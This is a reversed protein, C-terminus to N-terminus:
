KDKKPPVLEASLKKLVAKITEDKEEEALRAARRRTEDRTLEPLRPMLRPLGRLLAEALRVLAKPRFHGREDFCALFGSVTTALGQRMKEMGANRAERNPDDKPLSALYADALTFLEHMLSLNFGMIGVAEHDYSGLKEIPEMYVQLLDRIAGTLGISERLRQDVPLKDNRILDLNSESCIRKFVEGSNASEHRPLKGADESALAQLVQVATEYDKASWTRDPAPMGKEVYEASPLSKDPAIRPEQFFLCLLLVSIPLM